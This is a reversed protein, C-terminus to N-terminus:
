MAGMFYPFRVSVGDLMFPRIFVVGDRRTVVERIAYTWFSMVRPDATLDRRVIEQAFIQDPAIVTTQVHETGDILVDVIFTSRPLTSGSKYNFTLM